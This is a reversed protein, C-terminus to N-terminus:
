RCSHQCVGNISKIDDLMFFSLWDMNVVKHSTAAFWKNKYEGILIFHKSTEFPMDLLSFVRHSDSLFDILREKFNILLERGEGELQTALFLPVYSNNNDDIDIMLQPIMYTQGAFAFGLKYSDIEMTYDQLVRIQPAKIKKVNLSGRKGPGVNERNVALFSSRLVSLEIPSFKANAKDSVVGVPM